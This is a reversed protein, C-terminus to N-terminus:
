YAGEFGYWDSLVSDLDDFDAESFAKGRVSIGERHVAERDGCRLHHWEPLDKGAEVRRYGCTEPLWYLSKVLRPTLRLCGPVKKQRNPYDLCRCAQLDLLRCAVETDVVEGTSANELKVKCCQGCGDCLSEWESDSMESLSKRRWFPLEAAPEEDRDKKEERAM